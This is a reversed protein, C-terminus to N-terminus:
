QGSKVGSLTDVRGSFDEPKFIPPSCARGTSVFAAARSLQPYHVDPTPLRGERADWWEIRKYSSPYRLAAQFLEQSVPDDKRGVITLHLPSSGLELDVLLASSAPLRYVIPPAALYRMAQKALDEYQADGTCHSLLNAIRAVSVNEDRQPHPTYSKDTPTKSTLFGAGRADRFNRAVFKIAAEAHELWERDGTAGYLALFARAMAATDGLFPGAVDRSGHRFGGGPLARNALIWRASRAADKLVAPDGTTDYLAVMGSIAWGNERSYIHKDVRPVGLKRRGKDDLAFYEASHKGEIL